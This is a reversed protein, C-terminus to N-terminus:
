KYHKMIFLAMTNALATAIQETSPKIEGSEIKRHTEPALPIVLCDPLKDGIGGQEGAVWTHHPEAREIPMGTIADYGLGRVWELYKENHWHQRHAALKGIHKTAQEAQAKLEMAMEAIHNHTSSENRRVIEDIEAQLQVLRMEDKPREPAAKGTMLSELKEFNSVKLQICQSKIKAEASPWTGCGISELYRYTRLNNSIVSPSFGYHECFKKWSGMELMIMDENEFLVRGFEFRNEFAKKQRDAIEVLLNMEKSQLTVLQDAVEEMFSSPIYAYAVQETM